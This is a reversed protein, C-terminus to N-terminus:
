AVEPQEPEKGPEERRVARSVRRQILSLWLKFDEYEEASIEAPWQFTAIGTDFPHTATEM